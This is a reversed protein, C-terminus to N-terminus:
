KKGVKFARRILEVGAGLLFIGIGYFGAKKWVIRRYMQEEDLVDVIPTEGSYDVTCEVDEVNQEPQQATTDNYVWHMNEEQQPQAKKEAEKLFDNWSRKGENNNM